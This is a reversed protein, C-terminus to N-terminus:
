DGGTNVICVILLPFSLSLFLHLSLSLLVHILEQMIVVKIVKYQCLKFMIDDPSFNIAYRIPFSHAYYIVYDEENGKRKDVEKESSVM